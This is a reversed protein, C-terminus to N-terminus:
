PERRQPLPTRCGSCLRTRAEALFDENAFPVHCSPCAGDYARGRRVWRAYREPNPLAIGCSPCRATGRPFRAQCSWCAFERPALVDRLRRLARLPLAALGMLALAVLAALAALARLPGRNPPVDRWRSGCRPCEYRYRGTALPLGFAMGSARWRRDLSNDSSSRAGCQPCVPEVPTDALIVSDLPPAPAELLERADELTAEPVILKVGGILDSHLWQVGIYHEDAVRADIGASELLARSIHAHHPERYRAVVVYSV